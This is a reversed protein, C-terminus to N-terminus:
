TEERERKRKRRRDFDIREEKGDVINKGGKKAEKVRDKERIEIKKCRRKRGWSEYGIRVSM